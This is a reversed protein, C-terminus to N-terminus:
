GTLAALETGLAEYQQTLGTLRAANEQAHDHMTNTTDASTSLAPNSVALQFNYSLAPGAPGSFYLSQAVPVAASLEDIINNLTSRCGQVQEDQTQVTGYVADNVEVIHASLEGFSSNVARLRTAAGGAWGDRSGPEVDCLLVNVDHLRASSVAFESGVPATEEDSNQSDSDHKNKSKRKAEMVGCMIAMGAIIVIAVAIMGGKEWQEDTWVDGSPEGWFDLGNAM